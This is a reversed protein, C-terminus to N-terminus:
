STHMSTIQLFYCCVHNPPSSYMHVVLYSTFVLSKETYFKPNSLMYNKVKNRADKFLPSFLALLKHICYATLHTFSTNFSPYM